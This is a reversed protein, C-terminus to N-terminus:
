SYIKIKEINKRTNESYWIELFDMISEKERRLM